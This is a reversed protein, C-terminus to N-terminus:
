IRISSKLHMACSMEVRNVKSMMLAVVSSYFWPGMCLFLLLSPDWPSKAKEEITCPDPGFRHSLNQCHFNDGYCGGSYFLINIATKNLIGSNRLDNMNSLTITISRGTLPGCWIAQFRSELCRWSPSLSASALLSRWRFVSFPLYCRKCLTGIATDEFEASM